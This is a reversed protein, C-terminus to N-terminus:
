ERRQPVASASPLMSPSAKPLKQETDREATAQGSPKVDRMAWEGPGTRCAQGQHTVERAALKDHPKQAVLARFPRCVTNGIVALGGTPEFRGHKKSAPNDWNVPLGAGQPDVALTLAANARRWDEDDLPIAFVAVPTPNISATTEDDAGGFGPISMTLACGTTLLALALALFARQARARRNRSATPKRYGDQARVPRLQV